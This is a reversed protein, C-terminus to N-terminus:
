LASYKSIQISETAIHSSLMMETFPEFTTSYTTFTLSHLPKEQPSAPVPLLPTCSYGEVPLGVQGQPPLEGGGKGMCWM